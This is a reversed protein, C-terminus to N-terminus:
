PQPNLIKNIADLLYNSIWIRGVLKDYAKEITDSTENIDLGGLTVSVSWDKDYPKTVSSKQIVWDKIQQARIEKAM